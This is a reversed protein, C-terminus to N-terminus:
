MGEKDGHGSEERNSRLRYALIWSAVAKKDSVRVRGTRYRAGPFSMFPSAPQHHLVSRDIAVFTKWDPYTIDVSCGNLSCVPDSVQIRESLEKPLWAGPAFTSAFATKAELLEKTSDTHLLPISRSKLMDLLIDREKADRKTFAPEAPLFQESQGPDGPPETSPTQAASSKKCGSAAAAFLLLFGVGWQAFLARRM